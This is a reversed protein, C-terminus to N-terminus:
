VYIYTYVCVCVCVCVYVCVCVCVCIYICLPGHSCIARANAQSFKQFTLTRGLEFPVMLSSKLIHATPHARAMCRAITSAIHSAAIWARFDWLVPAPHTTACAMGQATALAILQRRAISGKGAQSFNLLTLTTAWNSYVSPFPEM